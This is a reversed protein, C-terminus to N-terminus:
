TPGTMPERYGSPAPTQVLLQGKGKAEGDAEGKTGESCRGPGARSGQAQPGPYPVVTSPM